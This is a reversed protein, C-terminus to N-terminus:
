SDKSYKLGHLTKIKIKVNKCMVYLEEELIAMYINILIPALNTGIVIGLIQRFFDEQFKMIACNLVLEMLELIFHANPIVNQYRFFLEKIIKIADKVSINPYLNKFDITFLFYDKDFVTNELM